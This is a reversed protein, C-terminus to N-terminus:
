EWKWPDGTTHISPEKEIRECDFVECEGLTKLAESEHFTVQSGGSWGGVKDATIYINMYKRKM